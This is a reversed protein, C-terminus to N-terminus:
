DETPETWETAGFSLAVHSMPGDEAAGHWHEEGPLAHVFDGPGIEVPEGGRACIRGSGSLVYLVQGQGHRHWHTRAGAQFSVILPVAAPTDIEGLALRSASGVFHEQEMAEQALDSSRTVRM